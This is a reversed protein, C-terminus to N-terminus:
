GVAMLAAGVIGSDSGLGAPVIQLERTAPSWVHARTSAVFRDWYLGGAVGLGGGVVVADPDLVNVLWGVANGLADGASSIVHWADLDGSDLASFVQQGHVVERGVRDRYRAALAPGSAVNELVTDQSAGCRSCVSTVPASALVLANGRSGGYPVGNQVLCSSIGTGVTVYVFSWDARGTGFRSEALAATRVDSDIAVPAIHNLAGRVDIEMWDITQASRIRGASDVLEAVGLGVGQVTDGMALSESALESAVTAVRELVRAGGQESGTPVQRRILIQGTRPDVLGGSIKTGGVDLGISWRGTSPASM